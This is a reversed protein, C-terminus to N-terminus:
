LRGGHRCPPRRSDVRRVTAGRPLGKQMALPPLADYDYADGVSHKVTAKEMTQQM